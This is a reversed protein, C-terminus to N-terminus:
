RIFGSSFPIVGARVGDAVSANGIQRIAGAICLAESIAGKEIDRAPKERGGDVHELDVIRSGVGPCCSRRQQVGHAVVCPSFKRSAEQHNATVVRDDADAVPVM